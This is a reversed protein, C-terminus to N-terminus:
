ERGGCATKITTGTKNTIERKIKEGCSYSCMKLLLKVRRKTETPQTATQRKALKGVLDISFFVKVIMDVAAASM